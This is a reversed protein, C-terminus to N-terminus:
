DPASYIVAMILVAIEEVPLIPCYPKVQLGYWPSGGSVVVFSVLGGKYLWLVLLPMRTVYLCTLLASVFVGPISLSLLRATM